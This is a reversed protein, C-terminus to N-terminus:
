QRVTFGITRRNGREDTLTLSHPGATPEVAMRHSGGATSGLYDGDLWWFLTANRDSHAASLVIQQRSGDLGRPPFLETGHDPYVIDISQTIERCDDRVPPLPTYSPNHNRFYYEQAPPLIFWARTFIGSVPECSSNVQWRGDPSLHVLRHYPCVSTEIGTRPVLLTDVLDCLESARHGSRRCVAMETLEDYPPEFWGTETPLMSFRCKSVAKAPSIIM